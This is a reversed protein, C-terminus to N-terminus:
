GWFWQAAASGRNAKELVEKAPDQKQSIGIPIITVVYKTHDSHGHAAGGVMALFLTWLLKRLLVFRPLLRLLL